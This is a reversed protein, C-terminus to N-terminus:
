EAKLHPSTNASLIRAEKKRRYYRKARENAQAKVDEITPSIRLRRKLARMEKEVAAKQEKTLETNTLATQLTGLWYRAESRAAEECALRIQEKVGGSSLLASITNPRDWTM